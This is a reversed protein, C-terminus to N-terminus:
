TPFPTHVLPPCHGAPTCPATALPQIPESTCMVGEAWHSRSWWPHPLALPVTSGVTAPRCCGQLPPPACAPVQWGESYRHGQAAQQTELRLRRLHLYTGVGQTAAQHQHGGGRNTMEHICKVATDQFLPRLGCGQRSGQPTACQQGMQKGKQLTLHPSHCDLPREGFPTSPGRPWM